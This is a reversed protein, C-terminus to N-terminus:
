KEEELLIELEKIRKFLSRRVKKDEEELISLTILAAKCAKIAEAIDIKRM